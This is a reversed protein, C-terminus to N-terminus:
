SIKYIWYKRRWLIKANKVAVAASAKVDNLQSISNQLQASVGQKEHQLQALKIEAADRDQTLV